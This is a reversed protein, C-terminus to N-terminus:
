PQITPNLEDIGTVYNSIIQLSDSWEAGEFGDFSASDIIELYCALYAQATPWYSWHWKEEKYGTRGNLQDGYVQVFGYSAANKQMWEYQELGIGSEFYENELSNLDLDTGWHHRSSGPMSSYELIKSARELPEYGMFRPNNWKRNWISRQHEWTRMASLIKLEIGEQAAATAMSDFAQLVEVKLYIESKDTWLSPVIQFADNKAPDVQGLLMERSIEECPDAPAESLPLPNISPEPESDCQIFNLGLGALM